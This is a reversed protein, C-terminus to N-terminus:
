RRGRATWGPGRGAWTQKEIPIHGVDSYMVLRCTSDPRVAIVTLSANAIDPAYWMRVDSGTAKAVLWRIVNGHCVLLDYTDAQPTPVFYKKWAADLHSVCLAIQAPTHNTTYEPHEPTPTCEQILTDRMATMHLLTGIEDATERARTFDSSVLSHFTIPVGALRAGLLGAQEHGLANLANGVRDDVRDDRDYMGHRILYVFHFGKSTSSGAVGAPPPAAAAVVASLVGSLLLIAINCRRMLVELPGIPIGVV